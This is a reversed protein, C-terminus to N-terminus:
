VGLACVCIPDSSSARLSGKGGPRGAAGPMRSRPAGATLDSSAARFADNARRVGEYRQFKAAYARRYHEFDGRGVEPLVGPALPPPELPLENGTAAWAPSQRCGPGTGYRAVKSRAGM